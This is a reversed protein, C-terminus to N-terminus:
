GAIGFIPDVTERLRPSYTMRNQRWYDVVTPQIALKRIDEFIGEWEAAEFLGERHQWAYNEWNRLCWM